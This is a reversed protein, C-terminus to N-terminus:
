AARREASLLPWSPDVTGVLDANPAAETAVVSVWSPRIMVRLRRRRVHSARVSSEASPVGDTTCQHLQPFSHITM